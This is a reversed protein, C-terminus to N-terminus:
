NGDGIQLTNTQGPVITFSATGGPQFLASGGSLTLQDPESFTFALGSAGLVGALDAKSIPSPGAVLTPQGIAGTGANNLNGAARATAAFALQEPQELVKEMGAAGRRTPMLTVSGTPPTAFSVSFGEGELQLPDAATGSGTHPIIANDSLRRVTFAGGS